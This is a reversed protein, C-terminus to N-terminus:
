GMSKNQKSRRKNRALWQECAEVIVRNKSKREREALRSIGESIAPTLRLTLRVM